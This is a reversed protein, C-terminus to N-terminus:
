ALGETGSGLFRSVDAAEETLGTLAETSLVEFPEITAEPRRDAQTHRWAGVVLGDVAVTPRVMGGGANVRKAHESRVALTRDRYGLLYPDFAPLLRVAPRHPQLSAGSGDRDEALMWARRGAATVEALEGAVLSWGARADRISLGSWTALDAPEAPGCAALYRRTIAALAAPRECARRPGAWDCLLVYTPKASRSPGHCIGARLAARQLLLAARQGSADIGGVGLHEVLEERTLPGRRALAEVIAAEARVFTGEDLGLEVHRASDAGSATLGPAVLALLWGADEATILQLAGRLSWTRVLSREVVLARQVDAATLGSSRARISLM